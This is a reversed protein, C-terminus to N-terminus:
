KYLYSAAGTLIGSEPVTEYLHRTDPSAVQLNNLIRGREAVPVTRILILRLYVFVAECPESLLTAVVWAYVAAAAYPRLVGGCYWWVLAVLATFIGTLQLM